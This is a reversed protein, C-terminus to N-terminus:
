PYQGRFHVSSCCYPFLGGWGVLGAMWTCHACVVSCEELPRAPAVSLWQSYRVNFNDGFISCFRTHSYCYRRCSLWESFVVVVKILRLVSEGTYESSTLYCFLDSYEVEPWNQWTDGAVGQELLLYPDMLGGLKQVKKGTANNLFTKWFKITLLFALLVCM